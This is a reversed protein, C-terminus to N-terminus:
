NKTPQKFTVSLRCFAPAATTRGRRINTTKHDTPHAFAARVKRDHCLACEATRVM